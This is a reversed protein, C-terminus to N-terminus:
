KKIELPISVGLVVGIIGIVLTMLTGNIGQSLAVCEIITLAMIGAILVKWDVEKAM